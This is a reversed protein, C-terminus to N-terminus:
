RQAEWELHLELVGNVMGTAMVPKTGPKVGFEPIRAFWEELFVRLERRALTAGPCTHPGNGFAAHPNPIPRRFDVTLPDSVKRDDLGVLMNPPLIMEGTKFSIGKYEFDYAIERATNAIGHRRLLEEIASRMFAEERFNAAMERRHEPNMALFRTVFGLMSAVTDLGGFMVLVAFPVAKDMPIKQGDIEANVIQSL